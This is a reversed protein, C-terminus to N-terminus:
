KALLPHLAPMALGGWFLAALIGFSLAYVSLNIRRKALNLYLSVAAGASLCAAAVVVFPTTLVPLHALTSVIFLGPLALVLLAQPIALCGQVCRRPIIAHMAWVSYYIVFPIAPLLYVQLKSSICSLLVLTLLTVILLLRALTTLDYRRKLGIVIGAVSLLTWPLWEYWLSIFYYYVPRAHHFAHIGRGVTQHFLLNHLYGSGGERYAMGFWIACLVILVLWTRWNLWTRLQSAHRHLVAMVIISLLPILLGLPGKTFLAMFLWLGLLWQQSPNVEHQQYMEWFTCMALVIFFCMLMDMRVVMAPGAFYATTMLMLMAVRRDTATLLPSTLRNMVAVVGCAPLLSLLALATFSHFGLLQRLLMVMWLYFPPKDAYLEGNLTFAFFHGDRLAEDAIAIYRGENDPTFDRFLLM